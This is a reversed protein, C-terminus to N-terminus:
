KVDVRGVLERCGGDHISVASRNTAVQTYLPELPVCPEGIRDCHGVPFWASLVVDAVDNFILTLVKKM